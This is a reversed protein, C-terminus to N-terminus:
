TTKHTRVTKFRTKRSVREEISHRDVHDTSNAREPIEIETRVGFCVCVSRVTVRSNLYHVRLNSNVVLRCGIDMGM